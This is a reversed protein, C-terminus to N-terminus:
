LFVVQNYKPCKAKAPDFILANIGRRRTLTWVIVEHCPGGPGDSRHHISRGGEETRTPVHVAHVASSTCPVGTGRSCHHMKLKESLSITSHQQKIAYTANMHTGGQAGSFTEGHYISFGHRDCWSISREIQLTFHFFHVSRDMQPCGDAINSEISRDTFNSRWRWWVSYAADCINDRSTFVRALLCAVSCCHGGGICTTIHHNALTDLEDVWISGRDLRYGTRVAASANMTRMFWVPWVSGSGLEMCVYAALGIRYLEIEEEGTQMSAAM